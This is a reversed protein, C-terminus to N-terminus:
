SQRHRVGGFLVPMVCGNKQFSIFVFLPENKTWDPRNARIFGACLIKLHFRYVWKQMKVSIIVCHLFSLRGVIDHMAIPPRSVVSSLAFFDWGATATAKNSVSCCCYQCTRTSNLSIIKAVIFSLPPDNEALMITIMTGLTSLLCM